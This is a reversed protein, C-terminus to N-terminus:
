GSSVSWLLVLPCITIFVLEVDKQLTLASELVQPKGAPSVAKRTVVAMGRGAAGCSHGM